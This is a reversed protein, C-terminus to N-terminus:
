RTTQTIANSASLGFLAAPDVIWYQAVLELDAPVGAPWTTSISHGGLPSTGGISRIAGGASFIAPVMVGGQFPADLTDFGFALFAVASPAAKYLDIELSTGAELTGKAIGM